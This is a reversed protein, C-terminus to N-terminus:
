QKAPVPDRDLPTLDVVPKRAEGPALKVSGPTREFMSMLGLQKSEHKLEPLVEEGLLRLSRRRDVDSTNGQSGMLFLTGPRLVRLALKIKETVQDPTGVIMMLDRQMRQYTAEIKAYQGSLDVAKKVGDDQAKDGSIGLWGGQPMSAIRKIAEPSNYGAPLTYEAKAFNGNGGAYLHNRGLEQAREETEDVFVQIVWGFNEPGAQYGLEAARDAYLGWLEASPGLAAGLGLYPYARDAAWLATEASLVGPIITPVPNQLPKVWPNVHRYHFHEGEYRWPGPETWIRQILDHAEQFIERNFAPNVNNAFQEPGSGRVWGAVLRGGSVLDIIALEEALRMPNRHAPIPNGIMYIKVHETIRALIAAEINLVSGMCFPNSHHENLAVGDFGLREAMEYEDFYNNYDASALKPEFRSNPLGFYSGNRFIEEESLGRHPRETFHVIHM